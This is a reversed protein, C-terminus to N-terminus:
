KFTFANQPSHNGWSQLNAFPVSGAPCQFSNSIRINRYSIGDEFVTMFDSVSNNFIECQKSSRSAAARFKSGFPEAVKARKVHYTMMMLSDHAFNRMMLSDHASIRMMLLDHVFDRLM